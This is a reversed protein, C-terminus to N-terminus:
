HTAARMQDMKVMYLGHSAVQGEVGQAGRTGRLMLVVQGWRHSAIAAQETGAPGGSKMLKFLDSAALLSVDDATPPKAKLGEHEIACMRARDVFSVVTLDAGLDWGECSMRCVFDKKGSITSM